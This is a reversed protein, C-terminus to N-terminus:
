YLLSVRHLLLPPLPVGRRFSLSLCLSLIQSPSASLSIPRQSIVLAKSEQSLRGHSTYVPSTRPARKEVGTEMSPSKLGKEKTKKRKIQKNLFTCGKVRQNNNNNNNKSKWDLRLSGEVDSGTTRSPVYKYVALDEM